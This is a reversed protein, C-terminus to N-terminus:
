LGLYAKKIREDELLDKGVGQITFSGNEMVYVRQSIILTKLANQEVLLITVGHSNIERIMRFVEKVVIQEKKQEVSLAM